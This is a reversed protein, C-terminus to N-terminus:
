QQKCLSQFVKSCHQCNQITTRPVVQAAGLLDSPYQQGRRPPQLPFGSPRGDIVIQQCQAFFFVMWLLPRRPFIQNVATRPPLFLRHSHFIQIVESRLVRRTAAPHCDVEIWHQCVSLESSLASLWGCCQRPFPFIQTTEVFVAHQYNCGGKLIYFMAEPINYYCGSIGWTRELEKIPCIVVQKPLFRALWVVLYCSLSSLLM